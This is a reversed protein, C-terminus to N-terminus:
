RRGKLNASFQLGVVKFKQNVTNQNTFKFQIRKGRSQGLYIRDEGLDHGGGWNDTGWIMTGWLSAGPNLSLLVSNGVGSDSDMKYNLTMYYSGSKEYLLNVYRFDKQYQEMGPNGSFEKTVFYSNIAAGDDNYVAPRNMEYVFGNATSSIYYLTGNYVTFQQANLGSWPAWAADQKKGLNQISFDFFLIRNNETAGTGSGVTIYANNKYTIASIYPVLTSQINFVEPEIRLSKMESGAATVTLLTSDPALADGQIAAFGVLKDAQVAPYMVKNNYVFSGFPSRTGYPSKLKIISWDEPATTPMYIIYTGLDTFVVLNDNYIQFGKVLDGANDGIEEFSTAKFVYPNGLESYWVLSPNQTDNCFLRNQHTIITSYQPPVGQDTPAIAGLSGDATNDTYTTTTNDTLETLRFFTTGSVVTRYIRRRAVGYSAAGTPISTLAIQNASAVFTVSVSSVDSEVLNSNVWTVKYLYQGSLVGTGGSAATLTTPPPYIGHRTFFSNYKYGINNGNNFYIYNEYESSGIRVGATYISQASPITVFTNAGYTYATGGFWAIMTQVQNASDHRTYLGDGIFSGVASSNARRTGLRTEVAGNEFVVNLCDCSENDLILRADFKSNLGGDFGQRANAPYLIDFQQAV